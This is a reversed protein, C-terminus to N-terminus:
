RQTLMEAIDPPLQIGTKQEFAEISEYANHFSAIINYGMDQATTLDKKANKWRKIHLLAEGRNCYATDYNNKLNIAEDYAEIAKDYIGKKRYTLGINNYYAHAFDPSLSVAKEYAEIAKDYKCKERYANGLNYQVAAALNPKLALMEAEKYSKIAPIYEKLNHYAIGRNVYAEAFKPNRVIAQSYHKVANENDNRNQYTLGECFEAYASSRIFGHIDNYITQTSIGHIKKLHDLLPKKLGAPIIIVDKKDPKIFGNPPSVFVSKQSIVRNQPNRLDDKIWDKIAGNRNQLIIRGPRDHFRDCAFFLAILCDTTFDILNTKGGYHQLATLIEFDDTQNTYESAYEQLEELMNPVVDKNLNVVNFNCFVRYLTSSVIEYNEPEGRYIYNGNESRKTIEHIIQLISNLSDNKPALDNSANM